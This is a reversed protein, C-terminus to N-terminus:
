QKTNFYAELEKEDKYYEDLTKDILEAQKKALKQMEKDPVLAVLCCLIAHQNELILVEGATLRLKNFADPLDAM